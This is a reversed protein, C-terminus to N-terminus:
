DGCAIPTADWGEDHRQWYLATLRSVLPGIDGDGIPRGDVKTVPMIGGATSTIFAEDASRLAEPSLTAIVSKVNLDALLDLATQRTIGELCTGGPTTVVGDKVAFVNFGPGEAINGDLDILAPMDCGHDYAEYLARIMDAWHFNKFRPDVSQPPIRLVSSVHLNIGHRRMEENAIWVFPIAFAIFRNQFKRPDRVGAPPVGRTCIVEVYADRLGSLRMLEHLVTEMEERSVPLKLRMGEVSREFRDLHHKLRFFRGKWVHAVDYTVDSRTFGWDLVSIRAERIPVYEGEIFAVGEAFRPDRGAAPATAAAISM